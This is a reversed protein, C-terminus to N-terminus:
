IPAMLFFLESCVRSTKLVTEQNPLSYKCHEEVPKAKLLICNNFKPKPKKSTAPSLLIILYSGFVAKNSINLWTM